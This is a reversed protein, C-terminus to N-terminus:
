NKSVFTYVNGSYDAIVLTNGSIAPSNFIPAGLNIKQEIIGTNLNVAYLYGDSAGFYVTNQTLIPSTEVTASPPMSYPTTFVLSTNTQINWKIKLFEKDLAILGRTASGFIIENATILPTSTVDIDFPFETTKLITGNTPEIM